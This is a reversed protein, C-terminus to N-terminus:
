PVELTIQINVAGLIAGWFKLFILTVAILIVNWHSLRVLDSALPITLPKLIAQESLSELAIITLKSTFIHNIYYQIISSMTRAMLNWVTHQIIGYVYSLLIASLKAPYRTLSDSWLFVYIVVSHNYHIAYYSAPRNRRLEFLSWKENQLQSTSNKLYMCDCTVNVIIIDAGTNM